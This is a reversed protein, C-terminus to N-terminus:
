GASHRSCPEQQWRWPLNEPQRVSGFRPHNSQVRPSGSPRRFGPQDKTERKKQGLGAAPALWRYPAGGRPHCALDPQRPRHLRRCRSGNNREHLQWCKQQQAGNPVNWPLGVPRRSWRICGPPWRYRGLPNCGSPEKQITPFAAAFDSEGSDAVEDGPNIASGVRRNPRM